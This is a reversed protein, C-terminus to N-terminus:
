NQVGFIWQYSRMSPSKNIEICWFIFYLVVIVFRFFCRNSKSMKSTSKTIGLILFPTTYMCIRAMYASQSSIIWFASNIMMLNIYTTREADIDRNHYCLWFLIGPACGALVRLVNVNRTFYQHDVSVEMFDAVLSSFFSYAVLVIGTYIILYVLRKWSIRKNTLLYIPSLIIASKHFLSAVIVLLLYKLIERRQIYPVSCFYIAIALWQRIANFSDTWCSLLLLMVLPFCLENSYRFITRGLLGITIASALFIMVPAPNNPSLLCGIRALIRIGPENYTKISNWVDQSYAYVNQEYQWYDTGTHYRVGAVFILLMVATAYLLGSIKSHQCHVFSIQKKDDVNGCIDCVSKSDFQEALLTIVVVIILTFFYVSM